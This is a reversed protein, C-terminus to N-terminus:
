THLVTCITDSRHFPLDLIEEFGQEFQADTLRVALALCSMCSIRILVKCLARAVYM